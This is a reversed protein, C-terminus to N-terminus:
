MPAFDVMCRTEDMIIIAGSGLMTGMAALGSRYDMTAKLRKLQQLQPTGVVWRSNVAKLKKGAKMGGCENNILDMLPYGLTVEYNGPCLNVDAVSLFFNQAQSKETGYKCPLAQAGDKLIPIVAALTEVNNVITPKRM